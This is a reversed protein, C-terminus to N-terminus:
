SKVHPDIKPGGAQIHLVKSVSGGGMGREENIFIWIIFDNWFLFFFGRAPCPVSCGIVSVFKNTDPPTLKQLSCLIVDKTVTNGM